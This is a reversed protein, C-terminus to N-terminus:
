PDLFPPDVELFRWDVLKGSCKMHSFPHDQDVMLNDVPNKRVPGFEIPDVPYGWHYGDGPHVKADRDRVRQSRARSM